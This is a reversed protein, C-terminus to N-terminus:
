KRSPLTLMSEVEANSGDGTKWFGGMPAFTLEGFLVKGSIEYLDVRVYIFDKSLKRAVDIMEKLCPPPPLEGDYDAYTHSVLNIRNWDLDFFAERATHNKFDRSCIVQIMKPKGNFCHIKYDNLGEVSEDEMFKEAILVRPIQIYHAEMGRWGYVMNLWSNSTKRVKKLDLKSKDKVIMNTGSGHNAKLVFRDPLKDFDIEEASKWPGGVMPILYDEGIQEKIWERVLYKDALRTKLTSVDHVKLWQIKENFTKPNDTLKANSYYLISDFQELLEKEYDEVPLNEFYKNFRANPKSALFREKDMLGHAVLKSGILYRLGGRHYLYLQSKIKQKINM